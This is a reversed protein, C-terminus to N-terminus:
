RTFLLYVALIGAVGGIKFLIDASPQSAVLLGTSALILSPTVLDTAERSEKERQREEKEQGIESNIKSPLKTILDKNGILDLGFEKMIEKPSNNEYIIEEIIEEYKDSIQFDSHLTHGLGEVTIFNKMLLTHIAPMYIGHDSIEIFLELMQRTVSQKESRSTKFRMVKRTTIEKAAGRDYSETLNGVDELLKLVGEVDERIFYLLMLGLKESSKHDIEGMMGFDLYAIKGERTILFNSKHLDAHFFGDWLAQKIGAEIANEAVQQIDVGWEELKEHNNSEVGEVYELVLVKNTNLEPFTRPVTENPRDKLNERFLMVNEAEKEMDIENLTWRAFEDVFDSARLNTLRQSKREVKRSLYKLIRLDTEMKKRIGPRRVKLVIDEGNELKGRYVQAISASAMPSDEIERFKELGIEEDIISYAKEDPFPPVDDQLRSFEDAYTRTVIDPRESMLQGFKIFTPGLEELGERVVEPRTKKEQSGEEEPEEALWFRIGTKLLILKIHLFRRINRLRRFGM